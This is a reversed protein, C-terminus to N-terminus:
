ATRRPAAPLRNPLFRAEYLESPESDASFALQFLGHEIKHAAWGNTVAAAVQVRVDQETWKPRRALVYAVLLDTPSATTTESM